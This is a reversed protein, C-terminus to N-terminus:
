RWEHLVEAPDHVPSLVADLGFPGSGRATLVPDDPDHLVKVVVDDQTFVLVEDFEAPPEDLVVDPGDWRSIVMSVGSGSLVHLEDWEWPTADRLPVHHGEARAEEVAAEFAPAATPGIGSKPTFALDDWFVITAALLVTALLGVPLALFIFWARRWVPLRAPSDTM